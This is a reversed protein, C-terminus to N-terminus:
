HRNGDDTERLHDTWAATAAEWLARGDKLPKKTRLVELGMPTGPPIWTGFEGRDRMLVAGRVARDIACLSVGKAHLERVHKLDKSERRRDGRGAHLGSRLFPLLQRPDTLKGTGNPPTHNARRRNM